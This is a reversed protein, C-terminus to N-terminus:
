LGPKVSTGCHPTQLGDLWADLLHLAPQGRGCPYPLLSDVPSAQLLPAQGDPGTVGVAGLASLQRGIGAAEVEIVDHGKAVAALVRVLVALDHADGAVALLRLFVQLQEM